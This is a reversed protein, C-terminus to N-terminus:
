AGTMSKRQTEEKVDVYKTNEKFPEFAKTNVGPKIKPIIENFLDALLHCSKRIGNIQEENKLRIM